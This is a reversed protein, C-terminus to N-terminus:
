LIGEDNFSYHSEETLIIHDLVPLDLFKGAEKLKNTLQIDAHSPNLNGSPHNHCLILASSCSKLAAAFIVKPDAVTGSIGGKSATFIGLVKNARNLLLVKFSEVFGLQGDEWHKRLLEAADSSCTIKYRESAPVKSHYSIEVETVQFLSNREKAM